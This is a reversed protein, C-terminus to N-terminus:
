FAPCLRDLPLGPQEAFMAYLVQHDDGVGDTAGTLTQEGPAAVVKKRKKLTIPISGDQLFRLENIGHNLFISKLRTPMM